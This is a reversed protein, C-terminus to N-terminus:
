LGDYGTMVTMVRRLGTMVKASLECIVTENTVDVVKGTTHSEYGRIVRIVRIVKIVRIVRIVRIM